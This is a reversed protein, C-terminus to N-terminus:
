NGGGVLGQYTAVSNYLRSAGRNQLYHSAAQDLPGRLNRQATDVLGFLAGGPQLQGALGSQGRALLTDRLGQVTPKGQRSMSQRLKEALKQTIDGLPGSKGAGGMQALLRSLTSPDANPKAVERMAQGLLSSAGGGMGGLGMRPGGFGGLHGGGM